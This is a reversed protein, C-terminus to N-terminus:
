HGTVTLKGKARVQPSPQPRFTVAARWYRCLLFQYCRTIPTRNRGSKPEQFISGRKKKTFTSAKSTHKTKSTKTNFRKILKIFSSRNKKQQAVQKNSCFLSMVEHAHAARDRDRESCTYELKSRSPDRFHINVISTSISQTRKCDVNTIM